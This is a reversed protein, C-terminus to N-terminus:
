IPLKEDILMVMLIKLYVRLEELKFSQTINKYRKEIIPLMSKLADACM